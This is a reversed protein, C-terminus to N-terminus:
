TPPVLEGSVEKEAPAQPNHAELLKKRADGLDEKSLFFVNNQQVLPGQAAPAAKANPAYGYRHMVSDFADVITKSDETHQLVDNMREIALAATGKLMAPIDDLVRSNVDKMKEAMYAKFLDSNVVTCLWAPSYNFAAGMQRYTAGPNALIWNALMEHFTSLKQIAQTNGNEM